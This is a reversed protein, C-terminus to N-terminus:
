TEVVAEAFFAGDRALPDVNEGRWGIRVTGREGPDNALEQPSIATGGVRGEFRSARYRGPLHLVLDIRGITGYARKTTWGVVDRGKRMEATLEPVRDRFHITFPGSNAPLPPNFFLLLERAARTEEDIIPLHITQIKQGEPGFVEWEAEEAETKAAPSETLAVRHCYMPTALTRIRVTYHVDDPVPKDLLSNAQVFLRCYEYSVPTLHQAKYVKGLKRMFELSEVSWPDGVVRQPKTVFKRFFEKAEYKVLDYAEDLKGLAGKFDFTGVKADTTFTAERGLRQKAREVSNNIATDLLAISFEKVNKPSGQRVPNFSIGAVPGYMKEEAILEELPLNECLGGDVIISGGAGRWTRFCFPIGASDLLAQVIEDKGQRVEKRNTNLNAVTIFTPVRLDELNHMGKKGFLGALEKGLAEEDWLPKGRAVLSLVRLKAPSPFLGAIRGGLSSQLMERILKADIRASFIAAAIAGASTGAVRTVKLIPNPEAELEQIAEVSALLAWIKAGGGQFTIQINQPM